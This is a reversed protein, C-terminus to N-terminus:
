SWFHRGGEVGRGEALHGVAPLDRAANEVAREGKVVGDALLGGLGFSNAGRDGAIGVNQQRGSRSAPLMSALCSLKRALASLAPRTRPARTGIM